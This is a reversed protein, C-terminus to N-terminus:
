APLVKGDKIHMTQNGLREAQAPDHTVLILVLGRELESALLSEVAAVSEQDLSSTPEDLLLVAPKAVLARILALRQREGTSLRLVQRSFIDEPLRLQRALETATTKNKEEFHEAVTPAWWGAQAPVLTVKRRWQPAPMTTRDEDGLLVKGEAADMDAVMRLFVSKGSGSAGTVTLCTGRDISMSFPGAWTNRLADIRLNVAQTTHDM